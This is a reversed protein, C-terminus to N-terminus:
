MIWEVEGFGFENDIVDTTLLKGQENVGKILTDFVISSKKLRTYSNLKYLFNNYESLLNSFPKKHLQDVRFLIKKYLEEALDLSNYKKGTIEKLSVPNKMEKDFATQNINIGIGAVAYKWKNGQLVNEILIGGAKRDCWYIDNPWKIFVRGGALDNFFDFCGLSVAVSIEFQQSTKLGAPMLIISLAINQGKGTEWKNGRQGKGATQEHAFWAMGHKALGAHVIAMAYNNTSDVSDLISFLGSEAMIMKVPLFSTSSKLTLQM